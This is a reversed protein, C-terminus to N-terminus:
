MEALVRAAKNLTGRMHVDATSQMAAAVNNRVILLPMGGSLQTAVMEVIPGVYAEGMKKRFIAGADNDATLISDTEPVQDGIFESSELITAQMRLERMKSSDKKLLVDSLAGVLQIRFDTLEEESLRHKNSLTVLTAELSKELNQIDKRLSTGGKERPQACRKSPSGCKWESGLARAPLDGVNPQMTAEQLGGHKKYWAKLGTKLDEVMQSPATKAAAAQEGQYATEVSSTKPKEPKIEGKKVYHAKLGVKMGEVLGRSNVADGKRAPPGSAPTFDFLSSM